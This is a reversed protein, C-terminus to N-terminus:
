IIFRIKTIAENYTKIEVLNTCGYFASPHIRKINPPLVISTLKNNGVFAYKGISTVSDPIKFDGYALM